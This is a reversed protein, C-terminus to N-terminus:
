ILASLASLVTDPPFVAVLRLYGYDGIVRARILHSWTVSASSVAVSHETAGNLSFAVETPTMRIALRNLGSVTADDFSTTGDNNYIDSGFHSSGQRLEENWDASILDFGISYAPATIELLIVSGSPNLVSALLAGTLSPPLVGSGSLGNESINGPDFESGVDPDAQFQDTLPVLNGDVYAQNDVFSAGGGTAGEPLWAPAAGGGGSSPQKHGRGKTRGLNFKFHM